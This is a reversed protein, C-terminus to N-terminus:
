RPVHTPFRTTVNTLVGEDMDKEDSDTDFESASSVSGGECNCVMSSSNILAIISLVLSILIFLIMGSLYIKMKKEMTVQNQLLGSMERQILDSLDNLNQENQKLNDNQENQFKPINFIDAL